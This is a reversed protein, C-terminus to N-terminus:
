AAVSVAPGSTTLVTDAGCSTGASSTAVIRFHYSTGATLGGIGESVAHAGSSSSQSRAPTQQGYAAAAGYQFYWTTSHGRSDVNGTLTAGSSTLGTAAGTRVAPPGTTTFTRDDGAGTGAANVAVLRVHYTTGAALGSISISINTAAAGSGVRKAPSKAGYS